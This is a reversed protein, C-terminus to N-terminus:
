KLQKVKWYCCYYYYVWVIWFFVMLTTPANSRYVLQFVFDNGGGHLRLRTLLTSIPLINVWCVVVATRYSCNTITNTHLVWVLTNSSITFVIPDFVQLLPLTFCGFFSIKKMEEKAEWCVCPSNRFLLPDDYIFVLELCNSNWINSVEQQSLLHNKLFIELFLSNSHEITKSM